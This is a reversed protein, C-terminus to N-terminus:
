CLKIEILNPLPVICVLNWNVIKKLKNLIDDSFNWAFIILVDPKNILLQEFSIIEIGTKPMFRGVKLDNDEVVYQIITENLNSLKMLLTAKTPCGYGAIKKGDLFYKQTLKNLNKMNNKITKTWSLLFDNDYLESISEDYLFTKVNNSIVSKGKPSKKCLLRLSGGQIENTSLDLIDFGIKNLLKTLPLAHHYDLHEHYTTDFCGTKLVSRFYGIEFAFFGGERLLRFINIFVDRLDEIHALVNQSTIFDAQGHEKIIFDVIESNFFSLYTKIQSKNAIEVPLDAPDVGVVRCGNNKFVKLCSGDNSGIDIVLSEKKLKCKEKAWQYYELQHNRFSAGIGSLYTYNKAYLIEPKVSASLQFHGCKTCRNIELPYEETALAMEKNELLNNGLSLDGFAIFEVLSSSSCLRCSNIKKFNNKNKM